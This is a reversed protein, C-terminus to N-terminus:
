NAYDRKKRFEILRSFDNKLMHLWGMKAHFDSDDSIRRIECLYEGNVFGKCDEKIQPLFGCKNECLSDVQSQNAKIFEITSNTTQSLSIMELTKAKKVLRKSAGSFSEAVLTAKSYKKKQIQDLTDDVNKALVKSARYKPDVIVRLLKQNDGFDKTVYDIYGIKKNESKFKYGHITKLLEVEVKQWNSKLKVEM